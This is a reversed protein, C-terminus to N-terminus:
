LIHYLRVSQQEEWGCLAWHASIGGILTPWSEPSVKAPPLLGQWTLRLGGVPLCVKLYNKPQHIISVGGLLLFAILMSHSTDDTYDM